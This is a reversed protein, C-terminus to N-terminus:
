TRPPPGAESPARTRRQPLDDPDPPAGRHLRAGGPRPRLRARAADAMRRPKWPGRPGDVPRPPPASPRPPVS